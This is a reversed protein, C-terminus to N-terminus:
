YQGFDELLITDHFILVSMSIVVCTFFFKIFVVVSNLAKKNGATVPITKLRESYVPSRM